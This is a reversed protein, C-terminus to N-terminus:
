EFLGAPPSIVIRRAAVDISRIFEAVMPVMAGGVILMDSAPYHAISDVVGYRHGTTADVVECGALDADLYEEPELEIQDRSAYLMADRYREAADADDVGDIRVLLRGKHPRVAALRISRDQAAAAGADRSEASVCRFTAGALILTRGADTPDCKLEGRVGFPGAIRAVPVDNKATTTRATTTAPKM